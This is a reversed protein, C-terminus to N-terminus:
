QPWLTDIQQACAVLARAAKAHLMLTGLSGRTLKVKGRAVAMMPDSGGSVIDQWAALNGSLVFPASVDAPAVAAARLCTGAELDVQIAAGHLMGDGPEVVLAVPNTWGKAANRYAVDSNVALLFADAWASSFAPIPM